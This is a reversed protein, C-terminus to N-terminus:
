PVCLYSDKGKSRKGKKKNRKVLKSVSKIWADERERIM